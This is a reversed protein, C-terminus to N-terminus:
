KSRSALVSAYAATAEQTASQLSAFHNLRFLYLEVEEQHSRWRGSNLLYEVRTLLAVPDYPGTQMAIKHVKDAVEPSVEGYRDVVSLGLALERRFQRNWPQMKYANWLHVFGTGPNSYLAIQGKAFTTTAPIAIISIFLFAGAIGAVPLLVIREQLVTIIKAERAMLGLSLTVLIATAPNQLPFSVLSLTGAILLSWFAASKFNIKVTVILFVGILFAGVVGLEALAQLAESHAAGAYTPFAKLITGLEPFLTLHFERFRDYEYSFSGLGHGFFSADAWMAATNTWLEVRPLASSQVRQLLGPWLLILNLPVILAFITGYMWHRKLCYALTGVLAVLLWGDYTIYITVYGAALLLLACTFAGLLKSANKWAFAMVFPSAILLWEALWNKNGFGGDIEPRAMLAVLAGFFALTIVLAVHSRLLGGAFACFILWLASVKALQLTGEQPDSSWSLSLAFYGLVGFGVATPLTLKFECFLLATALLGIAVWRLVHPSGLEGSWALCSAILLAAWIYESHKM